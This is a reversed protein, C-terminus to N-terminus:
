LENICQMLQHCSLYMESVVSACCLTPGGRFLAPKNVKIPKHTLCVSNCSECQSPM